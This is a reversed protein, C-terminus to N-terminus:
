RAPSFRHGRDPDLIIGNPNSCDRILDAILSKPKVTPHDALDEDRTPGFSNCGAMTIVNSIVNSRVRAGKEIGFTCIHPETGNKFM